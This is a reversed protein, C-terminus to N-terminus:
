RTLEMRMRDSFPDVSVFDPYQICNDPKLLQRRESWQLFPSLISATALVVERLLSSVSLLTRAASAAASLRGLRRSHTSFVM